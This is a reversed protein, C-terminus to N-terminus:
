QESALKEIAAKLEGAKNAPVDHMFKAGTIEQVLDKIQDRLHRKERVLNLVFRQLDDISVIEEVPAEVPADVPADDQTPEEVSEEVPEAKKARTKKAPPANEVVDPEAVKAKAKAYANESLDKAPATTKNAFMNELNMNLTELNVNLDVIAKTLTELKTELM